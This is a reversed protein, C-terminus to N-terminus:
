MHGDNKTPIGVIFRKENDLHIILSDAEIAYKSGDSTTAFIRPFSNQTETTM